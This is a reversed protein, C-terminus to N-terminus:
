FNGDETSYEINTALYNDFSFDFSTINMQQLTSLYSIMNITGDLSKDIFNIIPSEDHKSKVLIFGLCGFTESIIENFIKWVIENCIDESNLFSEVNRYLYIKSDVGSENTHNYNISNDLFVFDVVSDDMSLNNQYMATTIESSASEITTTVINSGLESERLTKRFEQITGEELIKVYQQEVNLDCMFEIDTNEVIKRSVAKILIDFVNEFEIIMEEFENKCCNNHAKYNSSLDSTGAINHECSIDDYNNIYLNSNVLSSSERNNFDFEIEEYESNHCPRHDIYSIENGTYTDKYYYEEIKTSSVDIESFDFYKSLESDNFRLIASSDSIILDNNVNNSIDRERIYNDSDGIFNIFSLNVDAEKDEKQIVDKKRYVINSNSDSDIFSISSNNGSFMCSQKINKSRERKVCLENETSDAESIIVDSVGQYVHKMPFNSIQKNTGDSFIEEGYECSKDNNYSCDYKLQKSLNSITNHDIVNHVDDNPLISATNCSVSGTNENYSLGVSRLFLESFDFEVQKHSHISNTSYFSNAFNYYSNNFFSDLVNCSLSIEEFLIQFPNIVSNIYTRQLEKNENVKVVPLCFSKIFEHIFNFKDNILCFYLQNVQFDILKSIQKTDNLEFQYLPRINFLLPKYIIKHLYYLYKDSLDLISPSVYQDKGSFFISKHTERINIELPVFNYLCNQSFSGSLLNQIYLLLNNMKVAYTDILIDNWIEQKPETEPLTVYEYNINPLKIDFIDLKLNYLNVSSHSIFTPLYDSNTVELNPKLVNNFPVKLDFTYPKNGLSICATNKCEYRLLSKNFIFCSSILILDIDLEIKGPIVIEPLQSSYEYVELINNFRDFLNGLTLSNRINTIFFSNDVGNSDLNNGDNINKRSSDYFHNHKDTFGSNHNRLLYNTSSINIESQKLQVRIAEMASKPIQRNDFVSFSFIPIFPRDFEINPKYLAINPFDNTISDDSYLQFNYLVSYSRGIFSKLTTKYSDSNFCNNNCLSKGLHSCSYIEYDDDNYNCAVIESKKGFMKHNCPYNNNLTVSISSKSSSNVIYSPSNLDDFSEDIFDNYHCNLFDLISESYERSIEKVDNYKIPVNVYMTLSLHIFNFNPICLNIDVFFDSYIDRSPASVYCLDNLSNISYKHFSLEFKLQESLFDIQMEPLLNVIIKSYNKFSNLLSVSNLSIYTLDTEPIYLDDINYYNPAYREIRFQNLSRTFLIKCFDMHLSVYYTTNSLLHNIVTIEPTKYIYYNFIKNHFDNFLTSFNLNEVIYNTNIDFEGCNDNKRLKYLNYLPRFCYLAINDLTCPVDFLILKDLIDTDCSSCKSYGSFAKTKNNLIMIIKLENSLIYSLDDLIDGVMSLRKPLIPTKVTSALIKTSNNDTVRSIDFYKENDMIENLISKVTRNQMEKMHKKSLQIDSYNDLQVISMSISINALDILCCIEKSVRELKMNNLNEKAKVIDRCNYISDISINGFSDLKMDFAQIVISLEPMSFCNELLLDITGNWYYFYKTYLAKRYRIRKGYKRYSRQIIIASKDFLAKMYCKISNQFYSKMRYSAINSLKAISNWLLFFRRKVENDSNIKKIYNMNSKINVANDRLKKLVLGTSFSRFLRYNKIYNVSSNLKQHRDRRVTNSALYNWLEKIRSTELYVSLTRTLEFIRYRNVMDHWRLKDMYLIHADEVKLRKLSKLFFLWTRRNYTFRGGSELKRGILLAQYRKTLMFWAERYRKRDLSSCHAGELWLHLYKLLIKRNGVKFRIKSRISNGERRLLKHAFTEWIETLHQYRFTKMREAMHLMNEISSNILINGKIYHWKYRRKWKLFVRHKYIKSLQEYKTNLNKSKTLVKKKNNKTMCKTFRYWKEKYNMTAILKRLSNFKNSVEFIMYGQEKTTMILAENTIFKLAAKKDVFEM